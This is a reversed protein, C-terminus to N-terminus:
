IGRSVKRRSDQTIWSPPCTYLGSQECVEILDQRTYEGSQGFQNALADVFRTQRKSLENYNMPQEM